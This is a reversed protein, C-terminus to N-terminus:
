EDKLEGKEVPFNNQIWFQWGDTYVFVKRYGKRVLEVALQKSMGCELDDCYIIILKDKPTSSFKPFEEEFIYSPLNYAGKIHGEAFEWQDRADVFLAQNKEFLEFAKETSVSKVQYDKEQSSAFLEDDTAEELVKKERIFNVGFPSIINNGIGIFSATLIITLVIKYNIEKLM